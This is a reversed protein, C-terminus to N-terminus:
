SQDSDADLQPKQAQPLAWRDSNRARRDRVAARQRAGFAALEVVRGISERWLVVELGLLALRLKPDAARRRELRSVTMADVGLRAALSSQTLGLRLRAGRLTWGDALRSM